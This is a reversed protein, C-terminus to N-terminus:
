KAAFNRESGVSGPLRSNPLGQWEKVVSQSCRRLAGIYFKDAGTRNTDITYNLMLQSKDTMTRLTDFRQGLSPQIFLLFLLEDPRMGGTPNVTGFAHNGGEYNVGFVRGRYQARVRQKILHEVNRVDAMGFDPALIGTVHDFTLNGGLGKLSSLHGLTHVYDVPVTCRPGAAGFHQFTLGDSGSAPNDVRNHAVLPYFWSPCPVYAISAKLTRDGSVTAGASVVDESVAFCNDPALGVTIALNHLLGLWPATSYPASLWRQMFPWVLYKTVTNEHTSEAPVTVTDIPMDGSREFGEGIYRTVLDVIPGTASKQDSLAGMTPSDLVLYAFLRGLDDDELDSGAHDLTIKTALEVTLDTAILPMAGQPTSLVSHTSTRAELIVDRTATLRDTVTLSRGGKSEYCDLVDPAAFVALFGTAGLLVLPRWNEGLLVGFGGPEVACCISANATGASLLIGTGVLLAVALGFWKRLFAPLRDGRTTGGKSTFWGIITDKKAMALVFLAILAMIAFIWYQKILAWFRGPAQTANSVLDPM